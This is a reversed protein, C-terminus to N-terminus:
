LKRHCHHSSCFRFDQEWVTEEGDNAHALLWWVLSDRSCTAKAAMLWVEWGIKLQSGFRRKLAYLWIEQMGFPNLLRDQLYKDLQLIWTEISLIVIVAVVATWFMEVAFRAYLLISAGVIPKPISLSAPIARSIIFGAFPASLRGMGRGHQMLNQTPGLSPWGIQTCHYVCKQQVQSADTPRRMVM